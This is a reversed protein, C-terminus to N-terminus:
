LICTSPRGRLAPVNRPRAARSQISWVFTTFGALTSSTWFFDVATGPFATPDIAPSARREDVITQLEGVGPVRWGSGDLALSACYASADMRAYSMEPAAQQWTLKTRLDKV